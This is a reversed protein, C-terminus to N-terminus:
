MPAKPTGTDAVVAPAAAAASTVSEVLASDLGASVAAPKAPAKAAFAPAIAAPATMLRPRSVSPVAYNITKMGPALQNATRPTVPLLPAATVPAPAATAPAVNVPAPAVPTPAAVHPAGPAYGALQVGNDLFQKETPPSLALVTDNWRQLEPLRARTRVESRLMRIDHADAVVQARLKDVAARESSVKLSITYCGLAALMAVSILAGNGIFRSRGFSSSM